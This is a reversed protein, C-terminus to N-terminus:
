DDTSQVEQLRNLFPQKPIHTRSSRGDTSRVFIVVDTDTVQSIEWENGILDICQGHSSPNAFTPEPKAPAAWLPCRSEDRPRNCPNRLLGMFRRNKPHSCIGRHDVFKCYIEM